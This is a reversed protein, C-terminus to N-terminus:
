TGPLDRSRCAPSLVIWLSSLLLGVATLWLITRLDVASGLAGALVGGLPLGSWALFRTTAGMRGLLHDPCLAQRLSAAVVNNATISFAVMGAGVAFFLLRPGPDTLPILLGFAGMAVASYLVTRCRGVLGAIRGGLLAGAVAGVGAVTVLAGVGAASLGVTRLLFLIEVAYRTSLSLSATVSHLTTARVFPEGLVFRLGARIERVLNRDGPPAPAPEPTRISAVWVASWLYGLVTALVTWTAGLRQALQGALAPGALYAVSRNAELRGNGEVLRARGVLTPLYAGLSVDFVVTATGVVLQVVYLHEITVAGVLAAVPVSALAAARAVDAAVLVPRRRVRDAWAGVPLGVVLLPLTAFTSLLAVEWTSAGLTTAALLPVAMGAMSSGLKSVADGLWLRRFDASASILGQMSM